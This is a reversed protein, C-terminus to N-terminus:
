QCFYQRLLTLKRYPQTLMNSYALEEFSVAKRNPTSDRTEEASVCRM